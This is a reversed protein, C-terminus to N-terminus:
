ELSVCHAHSDSVKTDHQESATSIQLAKILKNICHCVADMNAHKISETLNGDICMTLHKEMLEDSVEDIQPSSILYSYSIQLFQFLVTSCPKDSM